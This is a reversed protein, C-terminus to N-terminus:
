KPQHLVVEIQPKNDKRKPINKAMLEQLLTEKWNQAKEEKTFVIVCM